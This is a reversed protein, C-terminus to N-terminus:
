VMSFKTATIKASQRRQKRCKKCSKPFHLNKKAYFIAEGLSITFFCGCYKCVDFQFIIKSNSKKKPIDHKVGEKVSSETRKEQQSFYMRETCIEWNDEFYKAWGM